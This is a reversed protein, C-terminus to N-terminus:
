DEISDDDAGVGDHLRPLLDLSEVRVLNQFNVRVRRNLLYLLGIALQRKQIVGISVRVIRLGASLEYHYGLGVFTESVFLCFLFTQFVTIRITCSRDVHANGQRLKQYFLLVM